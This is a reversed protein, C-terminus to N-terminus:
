PTRPLPFCAEVLSAMGTMAALEGATWHHHALSFVCLSGVVTGEFRVPVGLYSNITTGAWPTNACHPNAFVDDLILPQESLVVLMCASEDAPGPVQPVGDTPWWAVHRQEDAVIINLECQDASTLAVAASAIQTLRASIGKGLLGARHLLDLRVPDDLALTV